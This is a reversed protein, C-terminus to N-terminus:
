MNNQWAQIIKAKNLGLEQMFGIFNNGTLQIDTTETRIVNDDNDLYEIKVKAEVMSPTLKLIGDFSVRRKTEVTILNDTKIVDSM